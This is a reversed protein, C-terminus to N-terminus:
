DYPLLCFYPELNRDSCSRQKIASTFDGLHSPLGLTILPMFYIINTCQLTYHSTPGANTNFHTPTLTNSAKSTGVLAINEGEKTGRWTFYFM